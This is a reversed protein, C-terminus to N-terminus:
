LRCSAEAAFAPNRLSMDPMRRSTNETVSLAEAIVLAVLLVLPITSFLSIDQWSLGAPVNVNHVNTWTRWSMAAFLGFDSPRCRALVNKFGM